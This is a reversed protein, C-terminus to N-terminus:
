NGAYIIEESTVLHCFGHSLNILSSKFFLRNYTTTADIVLFSQLKKEFASRITTECCLHTMVGGIFLKKIKAEALLTLLKTKYFANYESKDIICVDEPPQFCLQFFNSNRAIDRKWWERMLSKPATLHRTFIVPANRSLFFSTLRNIPALIQEASPIFAPSNKLLFYNQLDLILLAGQSILAPSEKLRLKRAIMARVQLATERVPFNERM